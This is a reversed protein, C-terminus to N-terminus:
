YIPTNSHKRHNFIEDLNRIYKKFNPQVELMAPYKQYAAAVDEIKVKGANQIQQLAYLFVWSNWQKFGHFGKAMKMFSIAKDLHKVGFGWFGLVGFGWFGL